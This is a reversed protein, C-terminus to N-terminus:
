TNVNEQAHTIRVHLQLTLNSPVVRAKVPECAGSVSCYRRGDESVCEVEMMPCSVFVWRQQEPAWNGATDRVNYSLVNPKGPLTLWRTDLSKLGFVSVNADLNGDHLDTAMYGPDRWPQNAQWYTYKIYQNASIASMPGPGLLTIRPPTTDAVAAVRGASSPCLGQALSALQSSKCPDFALCMGSFSCLQSSPCWRELPACQDFVQVTRNAYASNGAIDTAKYRIVFPM